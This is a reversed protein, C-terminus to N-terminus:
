KTTQQKQSDALLTFDNANIKITELEALENYLIKGGEKIKNKVNNLSKPANSTIVWEGNKNRSVSTFFKKEKFDKVFILAGDNQKIITNPNELTPKIRDLYKIRHNAELKFLSGIKLHIEDAGNQSLIDRIKPQFNPLFDDNLTKLGFEKIWEQALDKRVIHSKGESDKLLYDGNQNQKIQMTNQGQPNQPTIKDLKPNQNSMTALNANKTQTTQNATIDNNQVINSHSHKQKIRELLAKAKPNTQAKKALFQLSKSGLVGSAFGLAFNQPSFGTANGNEDYEVGAISGGLM